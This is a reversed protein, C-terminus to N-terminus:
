SKSRRVPGDTSCLQNWSQYFVDKVNALQNVSQAPTCRIYHHNICDIFRVVVHCMGDFERALMQEDQHDGTRNEAALLRQEGDQNAQILCYEVFGSQCVDETASPQPEEMQLAHHFHLPVPNNSGQWERYANMNDSHAYQELTPYINSEAYLMPAVLPTEYQQYYFAQVNTVTGIVALLNCVPIWYTQNSFDWEVFLFSLEGIWVILKNM